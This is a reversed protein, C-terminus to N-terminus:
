IYSLGCGVDADAFSPLDNLDFSFAGGTGTSTSVVSGMNLYYLSTGTNRWCYDCYYTSESGSLTTPFYGYENCSMASIYGSGGSGTIGTNYYGTTDTIRYDDGEPTMKVYIKGGNIICGAIRDRQDGWFKEVHFVKVQQNNSNYGYFQGSTNLTGTTKLASTTSSSSINGNGYVAQSNTSKGMLLLLTRICEHQSWTHTYWRSGNAVCGNIENQATLSRSLSQGSLSRIKSTSGSGGYISWYFYDAISGDARTHAYAKYNDDYQSESVIEYEYNSDEYRYIWCLPFQAMANGDYSTNSVDSASGDEKLAYDNPNLYYGVTGDSKLMLPKNNKVFWMDSWDGYNFVGTSFNMAAPTMGEADYIYTVRNAPNSDNKDIRVGYRRNNVHIYVPASVASYYTNSSAASITVTTDGEALPNVTVTNNAMSVSATAVSPNSSTASINGTHLTNYTFTDPKNIALNMEKKNTYILTGYKYDPIGGGESPKLVKTIVSDSM